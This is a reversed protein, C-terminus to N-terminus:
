HRVLRVHYHFTLRRSIIAVIPSPQIQSARSLLQLEVTGQVQWFVITKGVM